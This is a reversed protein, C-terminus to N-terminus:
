RSKVGFKWRVGLCFNSITPKALDPYAKAVVCLPSQAVFRFDCERRNPSFLGVHRKKSPTHQKFGLRYSAFFRGPIFSASYVNLRYFNTHPHVLKIYAPVNLRMPSGPSIGARRASQIRPEQIVRLASLDYLCVSAPTRVLLIWVQIKCLDSVSTSTSTYAPTIGSGGPFVVVMPASFGSLSLIRDTRSPPGM